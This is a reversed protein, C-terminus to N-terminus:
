VEGTAVVSDTLLDNVEDQITDTLKRVVACAELAEHDEVSDTTASTRAKAAEHELTQGDVVALLRLQGERDPGAGLHRCRDDLRVVRYKAHVGQELVRVHSDHHVVFRQIVDAPAIKVDLAGGVRVQVSEQTLDNRGQGGGQAEITGQVDIDRLELRIEHGVRTDVEHKRRVSWDDRSLLGVVLLERHRLDGHRDEFWGGHVDLAIRTVALVHCAAEHVATVDHWLINVRGDSGDFCLTSNLEDVPARSGELAADVILWRGDHWTTVEGLDHASHAHDAVGSSDGLDEGADIVLEIEHVGLTGEHVPIDTLAHLFALEGLSTFVQRRQLLVVLLHADLGCFTLAFLFAVTVLELREGQRGRSVARMLWRDAAVYTTWLFLASM